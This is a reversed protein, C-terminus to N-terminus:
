EDRSGRERRQEFLRSRARGGTYGRAPEPAAQGADLPEEHTGPARQQEVRHDARDAGQAPGSERGTRGEAGDSDRKAPDASQEGRGEAPREFPQAGEDLAAHTAGSLQPATHLAAERPERAFWM